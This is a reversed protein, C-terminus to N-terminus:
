LFKAFKVSHQCFARGDGMQLERKSERGASEEKTSNKISNKNKNKKTLKLFSWPGLWSTLELKRM